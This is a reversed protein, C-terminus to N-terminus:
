GLLDGRAFERYESELVDRMGAVDDCAALEPFTAQVKQRTRRVSEFKPFGLKDMQMLFVPVSLYRLEIGNEHSYRELVKLYLLSDSNRTQEYQELISKVMGSVTKLNDM